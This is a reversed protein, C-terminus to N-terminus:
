YSRPRVYPNDPNRASNKQIIIVPEGEPHYVNVTTCAVMSLAITILLIIRM